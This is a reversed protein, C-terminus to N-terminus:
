NKLLDDVTCNLETALKILSRTSPHRAGHEWRSIDKGTCGVMEALQSQTLGRAIRLRSLTSDNTKRPSKRSSENM